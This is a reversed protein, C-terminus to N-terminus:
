ALWPRGTVPSGDCASIAESRQLLRASESPEPPASMRSLRRARGPPKDGM